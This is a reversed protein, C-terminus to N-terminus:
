DADFEATSVFQLGMGDRDVRVVRMQVVPAPEGPLGQLQVDVIDGPRAGVGTGVIYAGGDSIDRTHLFLEGMEPHSVKVEARLRTRVFQRHHEADDNAM